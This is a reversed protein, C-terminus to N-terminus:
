KKMDGVAAEVKHALAEDMKDGDLGLVKMGAKIGADGWYAKVAELAKAKAEAKAADDFKGAKKLPEVYAQYVSKVATLVADDLRVLMGKLTDNMGSASIKQSLKWMAWSLLAVLAPGLLMLAQIALNALM